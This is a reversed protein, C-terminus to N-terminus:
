STFFGTPDKPLFSEEVNLKMRQRLVGICRSSMARLRTPILISLTVDFAM